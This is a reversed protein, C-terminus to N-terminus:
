HSHATEFLLVNTLAFFKFWTISKNKGNAFDRVNNTDGFCFQSITTEM